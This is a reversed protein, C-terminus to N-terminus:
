DLLYRVLSLWSRDRSGQPQSSLPPCWLSSPNTATLVLCGILKPFCLSWTLSTEQHKTPLSRSQLESIFWNLEASILKILRHTTCYLQTTLAATNMNWSHQTSCHEYKLDTDVRGEYWRVATDGEFWTNNNKALATYYILYLLPASFCALTIKWVCVLFLLLSILNYLLICYNSM